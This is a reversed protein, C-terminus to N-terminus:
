RVQLAHILPRYAEGDRDAYLQSLYVIQRRADYGVGGLTVGYPFPLPLPWVAYPRIEWPQRTGAKVAAFDNLDYAWIQFTYPYAHPGKSLDIPDYCYNGGSGDPRGALRSDDTGPGYCFAGAGNSGFFLATRTGAVLAVGGMQTTGGYVSNSSDWSGLTSHDGTYYVLPTAPVPNRVGIDAPNWAFAAPGWSTRSVIPICCQGTIAQGGLAAQWEQPITALYGSVFGTLSPQWVPLFSTASTQSLRLSRSYHSARQNGNADYYLYATGYLKGNFVLLGGLNVLDGPSLRVLRGETPDNFPQLVKAFAMAEVDESKVPTPISVEAIMNNLSGVFLSNNAPNYTIPTGGFGFGNPDGFYGAPVRFAGMYQLNSFQLQRATAVDANHIPENQSPHAKLAPSFTAGLAFFAVLMSFVPRSASVHM